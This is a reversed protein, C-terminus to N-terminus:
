VFGYLIVALLVVVIYVLVPLIDKLFQWLWCSQKPLRDQLESMGAQLHGSPSGCCDSFSTNDFSQPNSIGPLHLLPAYNDSKLINGTCSALDAVEGPRNEAHWFLMDTHEDFYDTLCGYSMHHHILQIM